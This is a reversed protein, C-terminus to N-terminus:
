EGVHLSAAFAKLHALSTTGTVVVATDPGYWV